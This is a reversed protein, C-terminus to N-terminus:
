ILEETDVKLAKAIAKLTKLSGESEGAEMKRIMSVSIGVINALEAQTLGRYQRFVKIANEGAILAKVVDDSFCEMEGRAIQASIEKADAIDQMDEVKEILKEYLNFPLVAYKEGKITLFEANM